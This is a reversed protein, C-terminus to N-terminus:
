GLTSPHAELELLPIRLQRARTRLVDLDPVEATPPLLAPEHRQLGLVAIGGDADPIVVAPNAALLDVVETLREPALSAAELGIVVAGEYGLEGAQRFANTWRAGDTDGDAPWLRFGLAKATLTAEAEHPHFLLVRGVGGTARALGLATGLIDVEGGLAAGGGPAAGDPAPAGGPAPAQAPSTASVEDGGAILLLAPRV